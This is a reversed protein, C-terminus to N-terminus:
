QEIIELGEYYCDRHGKYWRFGLEAMLGKVERSNIPENYQRGYRYLYENMVGTEVKSKPDKKCHNGIFAQIIEKHLQRIDKQEAMSSKLENVMPGIEDVVPKSTQIVYMKIQNLENTLRSVEARLKDAEASANKLKEVDSKLQQTEVSTNATSPLQLSQFKQEFYQDLKDEAILKRKLQGLSSVGLREALSSGEAM